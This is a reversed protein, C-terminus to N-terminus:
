NPLFHVPQFNITLPKFSREIRLQLSYLRSLYWNLKVLEALESANEVNTFLCVRLFKKQSNDYPDPRLEFLKSVAAKM